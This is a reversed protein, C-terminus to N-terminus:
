NPAQTGNEAEVTQLYPAIICYSSRLSLLQHAHLIQKLRFHIFVLLTGRKQM